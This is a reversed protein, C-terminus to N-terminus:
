VSVERLPLYVAFDQHCSMRYYGDINNYYKEHIWRALQERTPRRPLESRVDNMMFIAIGLMKELSECKVWAARTDIKVEIGEQHSYEWAFKQLEVVQEQGLFHAIMQNFDAYQNKLIEVLCGGPKLWSIARETTVKWESTPLYYKVHSAIILDANSGLDPSGLITTHYYDESPILALLDEGFAPNPEIAICRKFLPLFKSLLEGNGSGLDILVQRSKLKPLLEQEFWDWAKQKQDTQELFWRFYEKYLESDSRFVPILEDANTILERIENMSCLDKINRM